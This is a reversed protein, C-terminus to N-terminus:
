PDLKIFASIETNFVSPNWKIKKRKNATANVRNGTNNFIKIALCCVVPNIIRLAVTPMSFNNKTTKSATMIVPTNPINADIPNAVDTANM